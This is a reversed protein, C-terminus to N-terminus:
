RGFMGYFVRFIIKESQFLSSVSNSRYFNNKLRKVILELCMPYPVVAYYEPYESFDVPNRFPSWKEEEFVKKLINLIEIKDDNHISDPIYEEFSRTKGIEWHSLNM